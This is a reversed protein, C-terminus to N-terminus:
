TSSVAEVRSISNREGRTFAQYSELGESDKEMKESAREDAISSSSFWQARKDRLALSFLVMSRGGMRSLLLQMRMTFSKVLLLKLKSAMVLVKRLIHRM